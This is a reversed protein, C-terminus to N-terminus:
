QLYPLYLKRLTDNAMEVNFSYQVKRTEYAKVLDAEATRYRENLQEKSYKEPHTKIDLLDAALEVNYKKVNVPFFGEQFLTIGTWALRLLQVFNKPSYGHKELQLKRKGGLQGTREGNALRVEGQMYGRLCKFMRDTDIFQLRNEIVSKFEPALEIFNETDTFLIELAGTNGDKLLQFFKRAEFYVIDDTEQKQIVDFKSLGLIYAPDTNVFVGRYDLDSQPTNLGYATSGGLTKCLQKM